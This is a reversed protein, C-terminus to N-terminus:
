LSTPRRPRTICARSEESSNCASFHRRQWRGTPLIWFRPRFEFLIVEGTMQQQDKQCRFPAPKSQHATPATTFGRLHAARQQDFRLNDAERNNQSQSELNATKVYFRIVGGIGCGQEAAIAQLDRLTQRDLRLDYYLLDDSKKTEDLM